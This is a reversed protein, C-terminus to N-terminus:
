GSTHVKGYQKEYAVMETLEQQARAANRKAQELLKAEEIEKRLKAKKEDRKRQELAQQMQPPLSPPLSPTFRFVIWIEHM